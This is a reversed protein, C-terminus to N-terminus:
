TLRRRPDDGRRARGGGGHQRRRPHKRLTEICGRTTRPHLGVSPEDLVYLLGQMRAGIQTALRLRHAEGGSLTTTARDLALYGLGLSALVELRSLLEGVVREAVPQEREPFELAQLTERASSLPLRVVDAVSLGAVRVALSEPRLRTGCCARCPEDTLYPRLDDFAEGGDAGEEEALQPDLRLLTEVRKRLDPVVGPFGDEDGHLVVGEGRASLESVPTRSRSATASPSM